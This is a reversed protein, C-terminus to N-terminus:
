VNVHWVQAAAAAAAAAPRQAKLVLGVVREQPAHEPVEESLLTLPQQVAAPALM